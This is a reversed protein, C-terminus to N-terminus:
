SQKPIHLSFVSGKGPTSDVEVRGGHAQAIHKVIALGLGTGGMKRSRAKDVRYFREFIRSLHKEEIGWGRDTVSIVIDNNEEVVEVDVSSDGENYKVANDLLNNVAQELLPANIRARADSECKGNISIKKNKANERCSSIASKVVETVSGPEMEIEDAEAEREIRSLSLLDEIIANLRDVQKLVINLFRGADDEQRLNGSILTEVFGKISTVPTKLEHSVNAVFDNRIKELRRINTIDHLVLMAGLPKEEAGTLMTGHAELYRDESEHFFVEGEVLERSELAKAAFKQLDTSRVVERFSRGKVNEGGIGLMRRAAQNVTLLREDTDVAIVAEIMGSLIAEQEYSQRAITNIREELQAAMDNMSDALAALEEASSLPARVQLNGSAFDEAARKMEKLPRTIRRSAWYSLLAVLAAMVLAVIAIEVHFEHLQRDLFTLPVSTRLVGIKRGGDEIPIAVYMLEKDLTYSFRTSHGMESRMAQAFEPRDAHNDMEAAEEMSDAVVKGDARMVTIRTSSQAGLRKVMARLQSHNNNKLLTTVRTKILQARSALNEVTREMHFDTLSNSAYLAMALISILAIALYSPYLQWLLKRRRM